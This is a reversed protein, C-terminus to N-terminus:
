ESMLVWAIGVEGDWRRRRTKEEVGCGSGKAAGM